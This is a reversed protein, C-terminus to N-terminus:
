PFSEGGLCGLIMFYGLQYIKYGCGDGTTVEFEYQENDLDLHRNLLNWANSFFYATTCAVFTKWLHTISFFSSAEEVVFLTGAIPAKFAAAVGAGSGTSVFDCMDTELM